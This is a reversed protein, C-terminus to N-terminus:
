PHVAVSFRSLSMEPRRWVLISPPGPASNGVARRKPSEVQRRYGFSAASLLENKDKELEELVPFFPPFVKCCFLCCLHGQPSPSSPPLPVM